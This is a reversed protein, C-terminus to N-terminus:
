ENVERLKALAAESKRNAHRLAVECGTGVKAHQLEEKTIETIFNLAEVLPGFHAAFADAVENVWCRPCELGHYNADELCTKTDSCILEGEAIKRCVARVDIPQTLKNDAM